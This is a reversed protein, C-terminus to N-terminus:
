APKTYNFWLPLTSSTYMWLDYPEGALSFGFLWRGGGLDDLYFHVGQDLAQQQLAESLVTTILQFFESPVVVAAQRAKGREPYVLVLGKVYGYNVPEPALRWSWQPTDFIM